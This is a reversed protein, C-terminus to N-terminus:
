LYEYLLMLFDVLFTMGGHSLKSCLLFGCKYVNLPFKKEMYM